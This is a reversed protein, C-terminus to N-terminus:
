LALVSEGTHSGSLIYWERMEVLLQWGGCFTYAMCVNKEENYKTPSVKELKSLQFKTSGCFSVFLPFVYDVHM